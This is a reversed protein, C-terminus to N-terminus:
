PRLDVDPVDDERVQRHLGVALRPQGVRLGDPRRLTCTPQRLASDSRHLSIRLSAVDLTMRLRRLIECVALASQSIRRLSLIVNPTSASAAHGLLWRVQTLPPSIGYTMVSSQMLSPAHASTQGTVQM